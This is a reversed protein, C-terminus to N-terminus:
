KSAAQPSTGSPNAIFNAIAAIVAADVVKWNELKGETAVIQLWVASLQDASLAAKMTADFHATAESFKRDRLATFLEDVRINDSANAPISGCMVAELTLIAVLLFTRLKAM